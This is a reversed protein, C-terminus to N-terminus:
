GKMCSVIERSLFEASVTELPHGTGPLVYFQGNPLERYARLTEDISVMPDRDGVGIRVPAEVNRFEDYPLEPNDGLNTMMEATKALVSRWGDDGHRGKLVAAFKPVKEEIKDPNLMTVERASSEPNWDLKTALTMVRGVREPYHRALYIGVYGGMSFGFIDAKKEGAEDLKRLVDEAFLRISFPEDPMPAGGHGSFNFSRVDFEEGLLPLLPGFEAETYLAGHLLLLM